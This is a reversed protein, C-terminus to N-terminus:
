EIADSEALTEQEKWQQSSAAIVAEIHAPETGCHLLARRALVKATEEEALVASIEGLQELDRATEASHTRALIKLDPNILRLREVIAKTELPDPLAIIAIAAYEPRCQKLIWPNSADGFVTHVNESEARKLREISVDVVVVKTACASIIDLIHKGVRGLGLLIVHNRLHTPVLTEADPASARKGLLRSVHPEFHYLLPSLVMTVLTTSVLLDYVDRDILELASSEAAVIFSFEGIQCLAIGATLAVHLHQGTLRTLLAIIVTKGMVIAGSLSLVALWHEAIYAPNLLMGVSVFFVSVLLDRLPIVEAVVAHSYESESIIIGALFAGVAVSIGATSAGAAAGICIAVAVLIFLERSRLRATTRLIVPMVRTALLLVALLILTSWLFSQATSQWAAGQAITPLIGLGIVLSLDQVLAYSLTSVGFPSRIDHKGTVMKMALATSSLAIAYGVIAAGTSDFGLLRGIAFGLAMTLLIQLPAAVFALSKARALSSLSFEIGVVFLLLAVGIDAVPMVQESSIGLRERFLSVAVGASIYGLITPMRLLRAALGGAVAAGLVIAPTVLEAGEAAMRRM